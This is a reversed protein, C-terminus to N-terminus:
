VSSLALGGEGFHTHTDIFGPVILGDFERVQTDSGKWQLIEERNGIAVITDSNIALAEAWPQQQNATWIKGIIIQEVPKRKESCASLVLALVVLSFSTKM